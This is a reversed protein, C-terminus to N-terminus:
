LRILTPPLLGLLELHLHYVGALRLEALIKGVRQPGYDVLVLTPLLLGFLELYLHHLSALRVEALIM